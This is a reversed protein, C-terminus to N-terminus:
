IWIMPMAKLTHRDSYKASSSKFNGASSDLANIKSAEDEYYRDTLWEVLRGNDYYGLVSALDFHERLEEITRVPTEDAMKLPFKVKKAM